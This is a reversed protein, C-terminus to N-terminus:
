AAAKDVNLSSNWGNRWEQRCTGILEIRVIRWFHDTVVEGPVLRWTSTTRLKLEQMSYVLRCRLNSPKASLVIAEIPQALDRCLYDNEIAPRGVSVDNLGAPLHEDKM